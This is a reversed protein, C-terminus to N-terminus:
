VSLRTLCIWACGCGGPLDAEAPAVIFGLGLLVGLLVTMGVKNRNM